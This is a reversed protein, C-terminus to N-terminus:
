LGMIYGSSSYATKGLSNTVFFRYYIMAGNPINTVDITFENSIPAGYDEYIGDYNDISPQQNTKGLVVGYKTIDAGGDSTIKGYLTANKGSYTPQQAITISPMGNTTKFSIASGYTTGNTNKAYACAYYTKSPTLNTLECSYQGSQATKNVVVDDSLTPKKNTSSYCIGCEMIPFGGDSLIKGTVIAKVSGVQSSSVTSVQPLGSPTTFTVTSGEGTGQSNVAYARVYYKTGPELDNLQYSFSNKSVQTQVEQDSYDGEARYYFGAQTIAAGGNSVITGSVLASSSTVSSAAQTSVTPAISQTTFKVDEGYVTGASNVAYARVHYEVGAELETMSCSFTGTGTGNAAHSDNVTPYSSKRWCIGRETVQRDGDSVVEGGCSASNSTIATVKGTHVVALGETTQITIQEGYGTGFANTAYARIYYTANSTLDSLSSEWKGIGSGDSTHSGETTPLPTLSYCVGRATISEGADDIAECQIIASSSTVSQSGLTKVVPLGEVTLFSVQSGYVTDAGNTVYARAYYITEKDLNSILRNYATGIPAAGSVVAKTAGNHITPAASKSYVFGFETISPEMDRTIKGNLVVSNARIDTPELTEIVNNSSALVTIQRTGSNSVIHITTSNDGINLKNRDIRVVLPQSDNPKLEGSLKSVSSIWACSYVIDWELKEEGQNFIFFSKMVSEPNDGFDLTTVENKEDDLITLSPPLKELQISHSRSEGTAKVPIENSTYDKYGTKTIYLRYVGEEIDVFSFNGDDGTIAKLGAPLLEVGASRIPDGTAKDTVVGYLSALQPEEEKKCSDFIIIISGIFAFLLFRKM